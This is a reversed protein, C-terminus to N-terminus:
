CGSPWLHFDGSVRSNRCDNAEDPTFVIVYFIPHKQVSDTIIASIDFTNRYKFLSSGVAIKSEYPHICIFLKPKSHFKRKLPM